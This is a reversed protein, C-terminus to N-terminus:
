SVTIISFRFAAAAAPDVWKGLIRSTSSAFSNNYFSLTTDKSKVWCNCVIASGGDEEVGEFRL